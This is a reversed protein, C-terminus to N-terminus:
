LAVVRQLEIHRAKYVVGMGGRGLEGLIEYGPISPVPRSAFATGDNGFPFSLTPHPPLTGWDRDGAVPVPLTASEEPRVPNGEDPITEDNM